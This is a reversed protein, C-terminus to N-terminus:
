KGGRGKLRNLEDQLQSAEDRLEKIRFERKITAKQFRELEELHEKLAEEAEKRETIDQVIGIMRVLQGSDDLVPKAEAYMFRVGGDPMRIRFEQKHMKGTYLSKRICKAVRKYDDAHVAKLFAHYSLDSGGPEIGFIHYLEDSWSLKKEQLNWEWSGMHALRQANALGSESQRLRAQEERLRAKASIRSLTNSVDDAVEGLIRIEDDM